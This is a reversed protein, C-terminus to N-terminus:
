VIFEIDIEARYNDLSDPIEQFSGLSKISIGADLLTKNTYTTTGLIVTFKQAYLLQPNRFFYYFYSELIQLEEDGGHKNNLWFGITVICGRKNLGGYHNIDLQSQPKPKLIYVIPNEFRAFINESLEGFIVDCDSFCDGLSDILARFVEGSDVIYRSDRIM